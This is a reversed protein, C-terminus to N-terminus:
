ELMLCSMLFLVALLAFNLVTFLLIYSGKRGEKRRFYFKMSILSALSAIPTGLGGIDTGILVGRFDDTFPSLLIAAPVNSIIQSVLASSLVPQNRMPSEIFTRVSEISRLNVSFIFFAVFTLLLIYDIRQLIKRDFIILIVLESIFLLKWDIVHFVSLMAIFLFFLYLLTREKDLKRVEREDETISGKRWLFLRCLLAILLASVISYPLIAAFFSPADVNFFSCIYLNQPNGVPTTMSGLNAAITEIVVTRIIYKEEIKEKDFLMMTFPVFMLLSVDNTFFMSSFFVIAVLLFSLTRFSGSSKMMRGAAADFFGSSKLGESVGMLSFLLALTRFDIGEIWAMSPPNFFATIVAAVAAIVFVIERRIFALMKKGMHHYRCSFPTVIFIVHRQM